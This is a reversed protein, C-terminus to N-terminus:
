QNDLIAKGQETLPYGAMPEVLGLEVCEEADGKNIVQNGAGDALAQSAKLVDIHKKTIQM